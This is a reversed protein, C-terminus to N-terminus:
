EQLSYVRGGKKIAKRPRGLVKGQARARELGAITRERILEREFEAFAGLIQLMLMGSSNSTDIPQTLVIFHKGRNKLEEINMILEQLSRAWRDLKFVLVGDFEGARIRKLVDEKIPRTNRTSEIEEFVLYEHNKLKCYELLQLKQNDPNLDRKSVRIYIALKM